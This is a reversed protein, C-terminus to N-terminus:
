EGFEKELLEVVDNRFPLHEENKIADRLVQETPYSKIIDDATKEAIGDLNTLKTKYEIEGEGSEDESADKKGTAKNILGKIGKGKPAPAKDKPKTAAATLRLNKGYHEPLDVEGGIDVTVWRCGKVVGKSEDIKAKVKNETNNVFLM